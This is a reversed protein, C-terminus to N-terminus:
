FRELTAQGDRNPNTAAGRNRCVGDRSGNRPRPRADLAVLTRHCWEGSARRRERGRSAEV